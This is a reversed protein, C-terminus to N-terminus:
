SVSDNLIKIGERIYIIGSVITLVVAFPWILHSPEFQLLMGLVTMVQLFATLKGWLNAEITLKGTTSQIILAGLLLIVDRSILTVVLWVPFHFIPLHPGIMCLCVFSSILLLKDALPDLIAGARTKQYYHRAIYGDVVDSVVAVLFFLTAILRLEDRGPTYNLITAIFLPVIIIRGVTIKNALTLGM